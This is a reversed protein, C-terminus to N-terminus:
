SILAAIVYFALWASAVVVAATYNHPACAERAIGREDFQSVDCRDQASRTAAPRRQPGSAREEAAPVADGPALMVAELIPRHMINLHDDCLRADFM